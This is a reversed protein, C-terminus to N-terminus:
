DVICLGFGVLGLFSKIDFRVLGINTAYEWNKLRKKKSIM